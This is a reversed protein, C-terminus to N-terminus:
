IVKTGSPITVEKYAMEMYDVNNGMNVQIKNFFLLLKSCNFM